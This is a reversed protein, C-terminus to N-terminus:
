VAACTTSSRGGRCPPSRTQARTGSQGRAWPLLWGAIQWDGRIWRHRRAIDAVYRSPYEEYLTVDSLLASRCYAGEILDHSLIANDPFDGCCQRFCDVDYIGKGIFSGELFLDQYVDSVVRTYPDVGPDEAYLRAFRSRRASPLSVAVRPQLITYGDVVRRSQADLVPRNLRHAVAGVMLRAADRPLQTDTDLTIVYRVGSLIATQGVVEAFRGQAGRLMANLDALKGRKREHGMWVNERSNWRCARHLLYFIDGRIDAYKANLREIGERARHVLEADGPLTEAAADVFDTLLAFHLSPDRNSLYRLELGDLLREIGAASTLMTPVAVLTRHEPPIGHEFDMRPLSQPSLLRTVLWNVFALGLHSAAVLAPLALLWVAAWSASQRHSGRLFLLTAALTVLGAAGLYCTLPVRRRLKDLMVTPTFRMGALWELLPRGRDVLYYGVHAAREHPHERAHHEALQVAKRVVDYETLRGRRAIGEVAHRYRDRTAFDMEAYIGPPDGSLTQEVLSHEGVFRRWDNSNLFRLSNISNGISVQDAAQAQGDVRVLQEITTGQDTLRHELWSNVFAFNPNQGHLHRTLEALFAGSLPPDARAMDALVLILDTPNQEVVRVMREAWDDALDRDRRAAAIRVAVRRLNEILALRLMLPLASLEGLTLPDVSQYSTIFGNLGADDVRGDVHAILELAIGYARPFGAAPGGALRPLERSYSPPLLRRVDRIQEEVLYFNDLLWEAAPEIGRNQDAAAAVLDYTELLVRRNEDLRPLLKDGARGVALEHAVAVRKAHRELQDISFLAARLPQEDVAKAPASERAASLRWSTLRLLKGSVDSVRM